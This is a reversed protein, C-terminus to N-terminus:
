KFLSAKLSIEFNGSSYGALSSTSTSYISVINFSQYNMGLGFSASRISHYMGFLNVKNVYSVNAGIDLINNLGKIGRYVVKPELSIGYSNESDIKYSVASFFTPHNIRQNVLDRQFIGKINPLAAQVSLKNSTYALGFDGDLHTESQNYNAVIIDNPDGNLDEISLRENLFGLSFGFSLKTNNENLPMHYAYSAVSRLSKFLGSTENSVNLGIGANRTFAYEGTLIQSSPGGPIGSLEKRYGMYVDFGKRGAMAPNGLYQNQFYLAGIPNLQAYVDISIGKLIYLLLTLLIFRMKLVM